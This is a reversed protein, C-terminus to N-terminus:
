RVAKYKKKGYIYYNIVYWFSKLVNYGLAKHYVNFRSKLLKTKKSNKSLEHIYYTALVKKNTYCVFGMKLIELWFVYDEDRLFDARFRVEGIISKDFMTTLCSMDNGKIAKKFSITERPIFSTLSGNKCRRYGCTILPGHVLMFSIQSELYNNDITDDSDLFTIYRGSALDLGKNRACASGSNIALFFVKIRPEKKALDQLFSQSGDTSCDDVIIWEWNKYTQSKVSEFTRKFIYKSNYFATIITIKDKLM